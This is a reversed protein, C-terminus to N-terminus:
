TLLAPSPRLAVHASDRLLIVGYKGALRCRRRTSPVALDWPGVRILGSGASQALRRGELSPACIADRVRGGGPISSPTGGIPRGSPMTNAKAQLVAFEGLGDLHLQKSQWIACPVRRWHMTQTPCAGPRHPAVAGFAYEDWSIRRATIAIRLSQPHSVLRLLVIPRRFWLRRKRMAIICDSRVSALYSAPIARGARPVGDVRM